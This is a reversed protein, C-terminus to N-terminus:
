YTNIYSVQAILRQADKIIYIIYKIKNIKFRAYM